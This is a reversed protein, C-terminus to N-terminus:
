KSKWSLSLIFRNECKLLENSVTPGDFVLGDLLGRLYSFTIRRKNDFAQLDASSIRSLLDILWGFLTLEYVLLGSSSKTKVLQNRPWRIGPRDVICIYIDHRLAMLTRPPRVDSSESFLSPVVKTFVLFNSSPPLRSKLHIWTNTELDCFYAWVFRSM